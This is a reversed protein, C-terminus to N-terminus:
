KVTIVIREEPNNKDAVVFQGRTDMRERVQESEGYGRPTALQPDNSTLWMPSHSALNTIMLYNGVGVVINHRSFREGDYTIKTEFAYKAGAPAPTSATNPLAIKQIDSFGNVLFDPFLLAHTIFGLSFFLSSFLTIFITKKM